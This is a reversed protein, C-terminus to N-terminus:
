WASRGFRRHDPGGSTRVCPFPAAQTRTAAAESGDARPVLLTVAGRRARGRVGVPERPLRRLSGAGRCVPAPRRVDPDLRAGRGGRRAPRCRDPKGRPLRPPQAGARLRDHEGAVDPGAELVLYTAGLEWSQGTQWTDSRRYGLEALLWGWEADAALLDTVWVEVHHLTGRPAGGTDAAVASSVEEPTQTSQEPEWRARALDVRLGDLVGRVLPTGEERYHELAREELGKPPWGGSRLVRWWPVDSGYRSMVNGVFRAGRSGVMQAVDGYTLVKGGPIREVVELVQEAREPIELPDAGYAPHGAVRSPDGVPM